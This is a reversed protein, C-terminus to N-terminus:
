VKKAFININDDINIWMLLLEYSVMVRLLYDHTSLATSLFPFNAYITVTGSNMYAEIHWKWSPLFSSATWGNQLRLGNPQHCSNTELYAILYTFYNLIIPMGQPGTPTNFRYTSKYLNVCSAMSCTCSFTQDHLKSSQCLYPIGPM